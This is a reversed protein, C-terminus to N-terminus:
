GAAKQLTELKLAGARRVALQMPKPLSALDGRFEPSEKMVLLAAETDMKQIREIMEDRLRHFEPPDEIDDAQANELERRREGVKQEVSWQIQGLGAMFEPTLVEREYRDLATLNDIQLLDKTVDRFEQRKRNAAESIEARTRKTPVRQGNQPLDVPAHEDVDQGKEGTAIQFLSREFLKLTYSQAAGYAQSGMSADVIISRTPRHAWTEGSSHALTFSYTVSLWRKPKGYKDVGDLMESSAEDQLIILGSEACLPRVAELFDDISAFKYDAHKNTEGRQLKPVGAMVKSIAAAVNPPIPALGGNWNIPLTVPAGGLGGLPSPGVAHTITHVPDNINAGMSM